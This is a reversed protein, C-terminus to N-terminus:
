VSYKFNPRSSLKKDSLVIKQTWYLIHPVMMYHAFNETVKIKKGHFIKKKATASFNPPFISSSCKLYQLMELMHM